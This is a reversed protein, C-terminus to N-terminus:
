SICLMKWWTVENLDKARKLDEKTSWMCARDYIKAISDTDNSLCYLKKINGLAATFATLAAFYLHPTQQAPHHPPLHTRRHMWHRNEFFRWTVAQIKVNLFFFFYNRFDFNEFSSLFLHSYGAHFYPNASRCGKSLWVLDDRVQTGRLGRRTVASPQEGQVRNKWM